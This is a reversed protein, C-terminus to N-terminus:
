GFFWCVCRFPKCPASAMYAQGGGSGGGGGIGVNFASMSSTMMSSKPLFSSSSGVANQGPPLGVAAYSSSTGASSFSELYYNGTLSAARHHLFRYCKNILRREVKM